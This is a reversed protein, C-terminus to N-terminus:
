ALYELALVAAISQAYVRWRLAYEHTTIALDARFPKHSGSYVHGWPLYGLFPWAAWEDSLVPNM